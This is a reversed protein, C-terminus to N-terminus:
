GVQLQSHVRFRYICTYEPHGWNTLVRLEIVHYVGQVSEELEFTQVPRGDYDYVFAGLFTGKKQDLDTMGYVAFERPASAIHGSPSLIKPLHELTVHTVTVPSSLAITIYGQSGKFAWCKGPHVEPQIVARPGEARYWLPLGFLSLFQPRYTESCRSALVCGGSSELAHDAMGIVDARYISLASQVIERVDNATVYGFAETQRSEGVSTWLDNRVNQEEEALTQLLRNELAMLAEQLEPWMVVGRSSTEMWQELWDSVNNKIKENASQQIDLREKLEYSEMTLTSLRSKLESVEKVVRAIEDGVGIHHDLEKNKVFKMVDNMETKLMESMLKQSQSTKKMEAMEKKANDLEREWTERWRAEKDRLEKYIKTLDAVTASGVNHEYRTSLYKSSKDNLLISLTLYSFLFGSGILILRMLASLLNRLTPTQRSLLDDVFISYLYWFIMSLGAPVWPHDSLPRRGHLKHKKRWARARETDSIFSWHKNTSNSTPTSTNATLGVLSPYFLTRRCTETPVVFPSSPSPQLVTFSEETTSYITSIKPTDMKPTSQSEGQSRSRKKFIRVPSERYNVTSSIGDETDTNNPSYYGSMILRLSRRPM